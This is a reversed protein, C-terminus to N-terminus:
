EENLKHKFFEPSKTKFATRNTELHHWFNALNSSANGLLAYCLMCQPSSEDQINAHTFGFNIYNKTM